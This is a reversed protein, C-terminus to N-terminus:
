ATNGTRVQSKSDRDRDILQLDDHPFRDQVQQLRTENELNTVEDERDKVMQHAVHIIIFFVM